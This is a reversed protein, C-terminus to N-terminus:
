WFPYLDEIGLRLRLMRNYREASFYADVSEWITFLAFGGLGVAGVTPNMAIWEETEENFWTHFGWLGVGVCLARAGLFFLGRIWEETYLHGSSPFVFGLAAAMWPDKLRENYMLLRKRAELETDIALWEGAIFPYQWSTSLDAPGYPPASIGQPSLTHPTTSHISHSAIPSYEITSIADRTINLLGGNVLAFEIISEDFRIVTGQIKTGDSLLIWDSFASLCLVL